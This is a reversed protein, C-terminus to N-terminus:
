KFGGEKCKRSCPVVFIVMGSDQKECLSSRCETLSDRTLTLENSTKTNRMTLAVIILVVVILMLALTTWFGITDIKDETM